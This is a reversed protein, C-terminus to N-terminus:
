PISDYCCGYGEDGVSRSIVRITRWPDAVAVIELNIAKAHQYVGEMHANRGRDGCGIIGIRIRDNAGIARGKELITFSHPFVTIGLATVSGTKIFRRRSLKTM